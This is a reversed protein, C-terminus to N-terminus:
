FKFYIFSSADFGNGWIGFIFITLIIAALALERFLWNQSAFWKKLDKGRYQLGDVLILVATCLVLAWIDQRDLGMTYFAQGVLDTPHLQTVIHKLMAAATGLGEARFFLWGLDVLLFTFLIRFLKYSAAQRNVRLVDLAKERLPKTLGGFIQYFGHIAGWLVFTWLAGHWLGSVLFVILVNRYKKWSACRSGGLPIYVYDRFWSSLSIHWRQWFESVTRSIYPYNFNEDFHFGFMLGLGIAMDSYGGFDFYIQFAYALAGLWATAVSLSGPAACDFTQDALLAISNSLLMKKGLGIVFRRIGRAFDELNENRDQIEDAVTQYRVIPGAILQPFLAIYLAVNLPNKQVKGRGMSVDFVYSMAQFTFFSIGIPLVIHTQPIRGHFLVNLNAVTFNLYKFVFLLSLNAIVMLVLIRKRCAEEEKRVVLLGFLYNMLISAIMVLVFKPEGWAYFVLSALMLYANRWKRPLLFYGFITLPLFAFLFVASSFVM